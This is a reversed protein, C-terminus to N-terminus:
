ENHNHTQNFVYICSLYFSRGPSPYARIMQYSVNLVNLIAFSIKFKSRNVPIEYSFNADILHFPALALWPDHDDTTFRRGTYRYAVTSEFGALGVTSSAQFIHFPVYALQRDFRSDINDLSLDLSETYTYMVKMEVDAIGVTKKIVMDSEIGQCRVKRVNGPSWYSGTPIWQIWNNVNQLFATTSIEIPLFSNHDTKWSAGIDYGIGTEPVLDPNGGPIWYRENISPIRFKNSIQSKLILNQDRFRYMGSLAFLPRFGANSYFAERLDLNGTFNKKEFLLSSFIAGRYESVKGNFSSGTATLREFDVGTEIQINSNISWRCNLSTFLTSTRIGSQRAASDVTVPIERYLLSDSLGAITLELSSNAVKRSIRTFLRASRDQQNGLWRPQNSMAFPLDKDRLQLWSGTHIM